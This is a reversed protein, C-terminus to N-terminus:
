RVHGRAGRRTWAVGPVARVAATIGFLANCRDFSGRIVTWSLISRARAAEDTVLTFGVLLRASRLACDAFPVWEPASGTPVWEEVAHSRNRRHRRAPAGVGLRLTANESLSVRCPPGPALVRERGDTTRNL